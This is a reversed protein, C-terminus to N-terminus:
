VSCRPEGKGELPRQLFVKSEQKEKVRRPRQESVEQEEEGGDAGKRQELHAGQRVGQWTKREAVKEGVFTRRCRTECPLQM